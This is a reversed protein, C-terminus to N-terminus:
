RDTPAQGGGRPLGRGRESAATLAVLALMPEGATEVPTSGITDTRGAGPAWVKTAAPCESM